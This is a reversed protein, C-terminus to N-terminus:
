ELELLSFQWAGLEPLTFVATGDKAKEGRITVAPKGAQLWSGKCSHPRRVRLKLGTRPAIGTNLISVARLRGSEDALPILVASTPGELRVSVPKEGAWDFLDRYLDLMYASLDRSFRGPTGIVAIRGQPTELRWAGVAERKGRFLTMLEEAKCDPGFTFSVAKSGNLNLHLPTGKGPGAAFRANSSWPAKAGKVGFDKTLGQKQLELYADGTMIVGARLFRDFTEKTMGRATEETLYGPTKGEQSARKSLRLPITALRLGEAEESWFAYWPHDAGAPCSIIGDHVLATVGDFRYKDALEKLRAFLPYWTKITRLMEEMTSDPDDWLSGGQFTINNGGTALYLASEVAKAYATKNMVTCPYSEEENGWLDAYNEARVDDIDCASIFSKRAIFRPDYDTWSGGGIRVRAPLGTAEKIAKFVPSFNWCTYFVKAHQNQLGLHTGPSVAHVKEGVARCFEAVLRTHLEVWKRRLPQDKKSDLMKQVQARTWTRGTMKGFLDLCRRCCCSQEIPGHNHFRLDDDIYGALPQLEKCYMAFVDACWQVFKPSSPCCVGPNTKGDHGVLLDDETWQFADKATFAAGGFHGLTSSLQISVAINRKRLDEAFAKCHELTEKHVRMSQTGAATSLWVEDVTDFEDLVRLLRARKEPTDYHRSYIRLTTLPYNTMTRKEEGTSIMNQACGATLFLLPLLFKLGFRKV